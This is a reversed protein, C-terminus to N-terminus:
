LELHLEGDTENYRAIIERLMKLGRSKAQYLQAKSLNLAAAVDAIPRNQLAYLEFAQYTLADLRRRVESLAEELMAQRYRAQFEAEFPDDALEEPPLEVRRNRRIYDVAQSRIVTAFYTRFRVKHERYVFRKASNFFKLMVSQVLDDCEAANFRYLSGVYRIIPAYRDYFEAWSVEDNSLVKELLSKNTSPYQM